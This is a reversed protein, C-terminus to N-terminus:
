LDRETGFPFMAWCATLLNPCDTNAVRTLKRETPWKIFLFGETDAPRFSISLVTM